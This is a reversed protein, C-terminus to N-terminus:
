AAWGMGPGIRASVDRGYSQGLRTSFHGEDEEGVCGGDCINVQVKWTPNM